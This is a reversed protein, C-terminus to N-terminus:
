ARPELRLPLGALPRTHDAPPDPTWNFIVSDLLEAPMWSDFSCTGEATNAEEPTMATVGNIPTETNLEDILIDRTLGSNEYSIDLVFLLGSYFEESLNFDEFQFELFGKLPLPGSTGAITVCGNEACEEGPYSIFPGTGVQTFGNDTLEQATANVQVMTDTFEATAVSTM